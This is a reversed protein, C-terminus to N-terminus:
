WGEGVGGAPASLYYYGNHKYMKPGEMTPHKVHGDFVIAPDSILRKGDPSMRSILLTSKVGSRSAALGNVLYAKGDEDWFPCPDIWGKVEKILLPDSWPGAPNKAKVMYIGLDPDPYYVYFEGNHYRLSPAWVGKGYLPQKFLDFPPQKAFVHGILEWNVLDKSHLVPLGPVCNFSSAVLYFDDEVRIVDPDSYDSHVIPNKYTGDGNDSVWVKSLNPDVKGSNLPVVNQSSVSSILLLYIGIFYYLLNKKM